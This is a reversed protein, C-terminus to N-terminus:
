KDLLDFVPNSEWRRLLQMLAPGVGELIDDSYGRRYHDRDIEEVKLYSGRLYPLVKSLDEEPINVRAVICFRNSVQRYGAEWMGMGIEYIPVKGICEGFLSKNFQM